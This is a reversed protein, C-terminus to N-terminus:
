AAAALRSASCPLDPNRCHAAVASLPSLAAMAGDDHVPQLSAVQASWSDFFIGGQDSGGSAAFIAMGVRNWGHWDCDNPIAAVLDALDIEARTYDRRAKPIWERRM